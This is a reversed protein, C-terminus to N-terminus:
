GSTQFIPVARSVYVLTTHGKKGLHRRGLCTPYVYADGKVHDTQRMPLLVINGDDQTLVLIESTASALKTRALM